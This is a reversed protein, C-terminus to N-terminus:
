KQHGKNSFLCGCSGVSYNNTVSAQVFVIKLQLSPSSLLPLPEPDPAAADRQLEVSTSRADERKM